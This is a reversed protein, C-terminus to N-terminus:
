RFLPQLHLAHSTWAVKWSEDAATSVRDFGPYACGVFSFKIGGSFRKKFSFCERNRRKEFCLTCASKQEQAPNGYDIVM